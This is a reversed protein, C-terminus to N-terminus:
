VSGAKVRVGLDVENEGGCLGFMGLRQETVQAVKLLWVPKLVFLM